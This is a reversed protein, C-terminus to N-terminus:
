LNALRKHGKLSCLGVQQPNRTQKLADATKGKFYLEALKWLSLSRHTPRAYGRGRKYLQKIDDSANPAPM